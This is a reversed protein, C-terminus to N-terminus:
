KLDETISARKAKILNIKEEAAASTAALKKIEEAAAAAAANYEDETKKLAAIRNDFRFFLQGLSTKIASVADTGATLMARQLNLDGAFVDRVRESFNDKTKKEDVWFFLWAATLEKLTKDNLGANIINKVELMVKVADIKNFLQGITNKFLVAIETDAPDLKPALALAGAKFEEINESFKAYLEKFSTEILGYSDFALNATLSAISQVAIVNKVTKNLADSAIEEVRQNFFGNLRNLGASIDEKLGAAANRDAATKAAASRADECSAKAAAVAETTRQNEAELNRLHYEFVAGIKKVHSELLANKSSILNKELAAVFNPMYGNNEIINRLAPSSRPREGLQYEIEQSREPSLKVKGDAASAKLKKFLSFMPAVLHLREGAALAEGNKGLTKILSASVFKKIESEEEALDIKSVAMLIKDVPVSALYRDFFVRDEATFPQAASLLFIVADSRNIWKETILSRMVNPDNIGPTDVITINKLIEAPYKIRVAKVIPTFVGKVSIFDRLGALDSGRATKRGLAEEVNLRKGSTKETEELAPRIVAEYYTTDAGNLKAPSNKLAEWEEPTYFYIIYESNEAYSIETIKATEPTDATPLVEAGFIIDNLLMSKGAKIQGCVSAVFRDASLNAAAEDIAAEDIVADFVKVPLLESTKLEGYVRIIKNKFDSYENINQM